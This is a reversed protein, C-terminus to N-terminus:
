RERPWAWAFGVILALLAIEVVSGIIYFAWTEGALNGVVVGIYGIGAVINVWKSVTAKLVVSLVIMLSPVAMLVVASVLWSQSVEFTGVTGDMAENLMGPIFLAFHDVYIFLFMVAIWLASIKLKVNTRIEVLPGKTKGMKKRKEGHKKISLFM